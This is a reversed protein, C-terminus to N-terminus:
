KTTSRSSQNQVTEVAVMRMELKNTAERNQDLQQVIYGCFALTICQLLVMLGGVLKWALNELQQSM